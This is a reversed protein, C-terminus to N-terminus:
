ALTCFSFASSLLPMGDVFTQFLYGTANELAYLQDLVKVSTETKRQAIGYFGLDALCAVRAGSVYASSGPAYESIIYPIGMVTSPSGGLGPVWLYNGEGDQFKRIVKLTYRSFIWRLKESQLHPATLSHAVEIINEPKLATSTNGTSVDRDSDCGSASRAFIGLPQQTGDGNLFANEEVVAAKYVGRSIVFKAFDPTSIDKLENSVKIAKALRKPMLSRKEFSMATDLTAPTIEGTWALDSLDTDMFPVGVRDSTTVDFIQAYKRVFVANDLAHMIVATVSEGAVTFGGKTDLDKQATRVEMGLLGRGTNVYDEERVEYRQNPM